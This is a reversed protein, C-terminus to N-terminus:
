RRLARVEALTPENRRNLIDLEHAALKGDTVAQEIVAQVDSVLRLMLKLEHAGEHDRIPTQEWREHIASRVTTFAEQLIPDALLRAAKEGRERTLELNNM